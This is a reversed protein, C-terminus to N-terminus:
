TATAAVAAAREAATAATAALQAMALAKAAWGWDTQLPRTAVKLRLQPAKPDRALRTSRRRRQTAPISLARPAIRACAFARWARPPAALHERALHPWPTSPLSSASASSSWASVADQYCLCTCACAGARQRLHAHLSPPHVRQRSPARLSCPLPQNPAPNISLKCYHTDHILLLKNAYCLASTVGRWNMM